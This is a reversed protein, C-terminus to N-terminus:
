QLYCSLPSTPVRGNCVACTVKLLCLHHVLLSFSSHNQYIEVVSHGQYTEAVSHVTVIMTRKATVKLLATTGVSNITTVKYTLLARCNPLVVAMNLTVTHQYSRMMAKLTTWPHIVSRYELIKMRWLNVRSMTLNSREVVLWSM